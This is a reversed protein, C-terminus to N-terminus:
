LIGRARARGSAQSRGESTICLGVDAALPQRYPGQRMDRGSTVITDPKAEKSRVAAATIASSCSFGEKATRCITSRCASSMLLRLRHALRAADPGSTAHAATILVAAISLGIAAGVRGSAQDGGVLDRARHSGQCRGRDGPRRARCARRPQRALRGVVDWLKEPGFALQCSWDPHPGVPREYCTAYDRRIQGAHRASAGPASSRTPM